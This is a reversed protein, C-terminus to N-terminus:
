RWRGRRTRAGVGCASRASPGVAIGIRWSMRVTSRARSRRRSPPAQVLAESREVQGRDQRRRDAEGRRTGPWGAARRAREAMSSSPPRRASRRARRAPSAARRAPHAPGADGQGQLGDGGAPALREVAPREALAQEASPSPSKVSASRAARARRSPRRREPWPTRRRGACSRGSSAPSGAARRRGARRRADAQGVIGVVRRPRVEEDLRRRGGANSRGSTSWSPASPAARSSAMSPRARVEDVDLLGAGAPRRSAAPSVVYRHVASALPMATLRIWDLAAPNPDHSTSGVVPMLRWLRPSPKLRWGPWGASSAGPGAGAACATGPSPSARRRAPRRTRCSPRRRGAASGAGPRPGGTRRRCRAGASATAAGRQASCRRAAGAEVRPRAAPRRGDDDLAVRRVRPADPEGRRPWTTSTAGANSEPKPWAWAMTTSGVPANAAAASGRARMPSRRPGRLAPPDCAAGGPAAGAAGPEDAAEDRDDLGCPRKASASRTSPRTSSSTVAWPLCRKAANPSRM